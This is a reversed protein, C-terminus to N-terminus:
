WRSYSGVKLARLGILHFVFLTFLTVVAALMVDVDSVGLIGYRIGNIFYLIPNFQAVNQWFPHLGQISFFVGGLYILPLLVFSGVLSMQEFSKAWFAVIVGFQAFALGGMVLFFLLWLPHALSTFHGEQAFIFVEGVLYTVLGVIMGRSLGAIGLAWLIAQPTLPVIKLDELDGSFKGSVISSSSNQFANNLVGMMVLGPILFSLYSFGSELRISAGLSVGFILLYLASSVLPTLVTQFIVKLFRMMERMYLAVFGRWPHLHISDASISEADLSPNLSPEVATKM